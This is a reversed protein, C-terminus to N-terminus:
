LNLLQSAPEKCLEDMYCQLAKDLLPLSIGNSSKLVSYLPRPATFKLNAARVSFIINENLGAMQLAMRAFDFFSIEEQNSLHWIGSVGDILLDIVTNVIDPIYTPSIIIDSALYHYQNSTTGSQLIRALSDDKHWPNFFFSSRVILADPNISAVKEEALRKSLGYTNLPHTFDTDTYPKRKKGNFVQDTSFTVFKLGASKCAEALIGPGLTNERFCKLAANEAADIKTFGAANIVAWPRKEELFQMVSNQSSIDLESRESLYYKIGRNKCIKAFATGLSGSAGIILLPQVDDYSEEIEPISRANVNAKFIHRDNRRWWGPVKLLNDFSNRRENISKILEALATARPIGSRIDYIGSEYNNNREQLLSNWDFSGFFSWATIARFDLGEQKLTVATRYAEDFWRLQEERTCGLHVETLALPLHYRQWAERLLEGSDINGSIDARVAEVDAYRHRGNGGIYHPPYVSIHHDLYRNSTVYFNFGCISPQINNNIFFELAEKKIGSNIIYDWLPHKSDVKGLLMDYTLWRRQNEFDAQYKLLTTSHIKCIDETQILKAESQISKVANMALVVGKLENILIRLFSYDDSKHPYWVGYLGSFRATTLPENVPTYMTIWPYRRAIKYAYEALYEPFDLDYLNTFFPGSGHHMLGVIPQINLEQLKNLRADHIRFFSKEDLAYKEWLLPYRITKINLDSFLNLDELREEHATMALQDHINNKVRVVTCEVGGWIEVRDTNGNFRDM